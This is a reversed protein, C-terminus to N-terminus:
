FSDLGIVDFAAHRVQMKGPLQCTEQVSGGHVHGRWAQAGSEIGRKRLLRAQTAVHEVLLARQARGPGM